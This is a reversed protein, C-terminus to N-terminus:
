VHLERMNQLGTQEILQRLGYLEGAVVRRVMDIPLGVLATASWPWSRYCPTAMDGPAGRRGHEVEDM